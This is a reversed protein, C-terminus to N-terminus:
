KAKKTTKKAVTTAKKAVLKKATRTTAKKVQPKRKETKVPFPMEIPESLNKVKGIPFPWANTDPEFTIEVEPKRFLSFAWDVIFKM